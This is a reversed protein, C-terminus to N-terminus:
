RSSEAWRPNYAEENGKREYRANIFKNFVRYLRTNDIIFEYRGGPNISVLEGEDFTGDSYVVIGFSPDETDVSFDDKSKIPQVFTYGPLAKWKDDRKYLFVQDPAALYRDEDIYSRSNKEKAKINYWRRFINHHVIVDDGERLPTESALPTSLVKAARNIYEHNSIETNLILNKGEEVEVSNNYREGVPQIIYDFVGRM